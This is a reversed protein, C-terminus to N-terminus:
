AAAAKTPLPSIRQPHDKKAYDHLSEALVLCRRGFKRKRLRGSALLYAISRIKLGLLDAAEVRSYFLPTAPTEPM